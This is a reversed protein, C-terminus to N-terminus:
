KFILSRLDFQCISFLAALLFLLGLIVLPHKYWIVREGERKEKQRDTFGLYLSYLGMLVLLTDGLYRFAHLSPDFPISVVTLIAIIGILVLGVLWHRQPRPTPTKMIQGKKSILKVLGKM